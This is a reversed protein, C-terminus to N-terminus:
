QEAEMGFGAREDPLQRDSKGLPGRRYQPVLVDEEPQAVAVHEGISRSRGARHEAKLGICALLGPADIQRVADDILGGEIPLAHQEATAIAMHVAEIAAVSPLAPFLM